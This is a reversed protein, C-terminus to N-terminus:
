SSIKWTQECLSELYLIIPSRGPNPCNPDRRSDCTAKIDSSVNYNDVRCVSTEPGPLSFHLVLRVSLLLSAVSVAQIDRNCERHIVHRHGSVSFGLAETTHYLFFSWPSMNQTNIMPGGDIPSTLLRYFHSGLLMISVNCPWLHSM